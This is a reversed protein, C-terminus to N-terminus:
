REGFPPIICYLRGPEIHRSASVPMSHLCTQHPFKGASNKRKIELCTRKSLPKQSIVFGRYSTFVNAYAPCVYVIYRSRMRLTYTWWWCKSVKSINLSIELSCSFLYIYIVKTQSCLCELSFAITDRFNSRMGSRFQTAHSAIEYWYLYIHSTIESFVRPFQKAHWM